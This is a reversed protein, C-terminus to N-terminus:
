LGAQGVMLPKQRPPEGIPDYPLARVYDVLAWIQEPTLTGTAGPSAPGVGPMPVGNIGASIRRYLDLPRRGGRYINQRLNRPAITRPPLADHSLVMRDFSVQAQKAKLEDPPLSSDSALSAEDGEVSKKLEEVQKNWDDFDSTQGDGLASWGHCKACNAEKGYFLERGQAISEAPAIEPKEPPRVISEPAQQWSEVVPKLIEDVLVGRSTDLSAGESLDTMAIVLNIETQGRISLYKVYEILAKIQPDPLLDFAPMATGQVGHRLIIELDHDTPKAARETSKFKFKGQRYDRPYPNLIFATPGMGDGTTGHCHACHRRYLGTEKGFQDSHVAGAALDLKAQDLGTTDDDLVYPHDPTGFMAELINAIEQQQNSPIQKSAIEVMNLHFAPPPTQGCGGLAALFALAGCLQLRRSVVNSM